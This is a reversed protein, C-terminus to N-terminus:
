LQRVVFDSFELAPIPEIDSFVAKEIRSNPSGVNELWHKRCAAAPADVFIL